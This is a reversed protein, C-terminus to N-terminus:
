VDDKTLESLRLEAEEKRDSFEKLRAINYEITEKLQRIKKTRYVKEAEKKSTYVSSIPVTVLNCIGKVSFFHKEGCDNYKGAYLGSILRDDIYFWVKTEFEM